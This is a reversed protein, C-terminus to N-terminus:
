IPYGWVCLAIAQESKSNAGVHGLPIGVVESGASSGLLLVSPMRVWAGRHWPAVELSRVTGQETRVADPTPGDTAWAAIWFGPRCVVVRVRRRPGPSADGEVGDDGKSGRSWTLVGEVFADCM